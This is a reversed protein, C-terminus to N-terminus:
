VEVIVPLVMPRRETKKFLFTGIDDRVAEKVHAWNQEM